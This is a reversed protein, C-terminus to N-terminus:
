SRSRLSGVWYRFDDGRLVMLACCIASICTAVAIWLLNIAVPNTEVILRSVAYGVALSVALPMALTTLVVGGYSSNRIYKRNIWVLYLPVAVAQLVLWVLAAGLVSVSGISYWYAPVTVLVSLSLLWGGRLDKHAIAAAHPVTGLALFGYGIVLPASFAAVSEVPVKSAAWLSVVYPGFFVMPGMSASVVTAVLRHTALYDTRLAAENGSSASRVFRPLMTITIPSIVFVLLQAFTAVLTYEALANIGVLKGIFLKDMQTNVAATVAIVFMGSTFEANRLLTGMQFQRAGGRRDHGISRYLLRRAIAAFLLIFGLQWILYVRPEPYLWLPAIVVANRAIGASITVVNGQVQAQVGMLGAVYFNQLLQAAAAAFVLPIASAVQPKALDEPSLLFAYTASPVSLAALVIVGVVALYVIEYSFLLNARGKQDLRQDHLERALTPSLGLDLFAVLSSVALFLAIVGFGDIGLIQVYVPVFLFM